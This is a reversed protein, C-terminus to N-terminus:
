IWTVELTQPNTFFGRKVQKKKKKGSWKHIGMRAVRASGSELFSSGAVM